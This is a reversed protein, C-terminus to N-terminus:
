PRSWRDLRARTQGFIRADGASDSIDRLEHTVIALAHPGARNPGLHGPMVRWATDEVGVGVGVDVGIGTGLAPASSTPPATVTPPAPCRADVERVM